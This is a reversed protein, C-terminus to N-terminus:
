YNKVQTTLFFSLISFPIEFVSTEAISYKRIVSKVVTSSM